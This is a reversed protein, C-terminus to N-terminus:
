PQSGNEKSHKALRKQGQEIVSANKCVKMGEEVVSMDNDFMIAYWLAKPAAKRVALRRVEPREALIALYSAVGVDVTESGAIAAQAYRSCHAATFLQTALPLETNLLNLSRPGDELLIDMICEYCWEMEPELVVKSCDICRKHTIKPRM